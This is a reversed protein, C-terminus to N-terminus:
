SVATCFIAGDTDTVDHPGAELTIHGDADFVIRGTDKIVSGAGADNAMFVPGVFTTSGSNFDFVLFIHGRLAVTKGTASNTVSGRMDALVQVRVANGQRDFYVTDRGTFNREIIADFGGCRISDLSTTTFSESVPSTAHAPVTVALGITAAALVARGLRRM